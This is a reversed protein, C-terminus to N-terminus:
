NELKTALPSEFAKPDNQNQPAAANGNAWISKNEQNQEIDNKSARLRSDQSDMNSLFSLMDQDIAAQEEETM